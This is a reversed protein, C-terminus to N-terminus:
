RNHGGFSPACAVVSGRTEAQSPLGIIYTGGGGGGCSCV